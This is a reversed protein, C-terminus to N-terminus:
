PLKRQREQGQTSACVVCSEYVWYVAARMGPWYYYQSLWSYMKKCAFHGAFMAEHHESLLKQRLSAPVVLRRRGTVDGNEFYLVGDM